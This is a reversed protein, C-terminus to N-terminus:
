CTLYFYRDNNNDDNRTIASGENENVTTRTRVTGAVNATEM